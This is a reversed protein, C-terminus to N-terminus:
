RSQRVVEGGNKQSFATNARKNGTIRGIISKVEVGGMEKPVEKMM